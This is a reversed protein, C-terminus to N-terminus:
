LGGGASVLQHLEKIDNHPLYLAILFINSSSHPKLHKQLYEWDEIKPDVDRILIGFINFNDNNSLYSEMARKYDSKDKGLRCFLYQMLTLQLNRDECLKNLQTNLGDSKKSTVQPPYKNESSTKVEGFAFKGEYFGVLDAGTLSSKPNKLDRNNSWPFKCSWCNILYSEAFGEGMQWAKIDITVSTIQNFGTEDISNVYDQFEIQGQTDFCKEVIAPTLQPLEDDRYLIGLLSLNKNDRYVERGCPMSM